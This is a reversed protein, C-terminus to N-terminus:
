GSETSKRSPSAAFPKLRASITDDRGVKTGHYYYATQRRWLHTQGVM